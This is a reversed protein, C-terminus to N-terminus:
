PMTGSTGRDTLREGLRDRLARLRRAGASAPSEEALPEALRVCYIALGTDGLGAFVDGVYVMGELSRHDRARFLAALYAHRARARSIARGRTATNARLAADGVALMGEWRGSGLAAVYADQWARDALATDNRRLAEDLRQLHAAWPGPEEPAALAEIVALAIALVAAIILLAIRTPQVDDARM